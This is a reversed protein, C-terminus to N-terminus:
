SQVAAVVQHGTTAAADHGLDSGTPPGIKPDPGNM